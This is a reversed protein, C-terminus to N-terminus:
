LILLRNKIILKNYSRKEETLMDALWCVKSVSLTVKRILIPNRIM